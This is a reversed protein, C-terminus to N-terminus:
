AGATWPPGCGGGVVIVDREGLLAWPGPAWKGGCIPARTTEPWGSLAGRVFWAGGRRAGTPSKPGPATIVRIDMRSEHLREAVGTSKLPVPSGTLICGKMRSALGTRAAGSEGLFRLQDGM